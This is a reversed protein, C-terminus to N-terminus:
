IISFIDLNNKERKVRISLRSNNVFIKNIKTKSNNYIRKATKKIILHIIHRVNNLKIKVNSKKNNNWHNYKKFIKWKSFISIIKVSNIKLFYNKRFLIWITQFRRIIKSRTM